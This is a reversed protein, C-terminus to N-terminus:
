QELVKKRRLIHHYHQAFRHSEDRVCQLLKLGPDTRALKVAKNSQDTFILEEKKALSIVRPPHLNLDGFADLAAHLQGLGGDILVLDPALEEGEAIRRFRRWVVEKLMAYDDITQVTKIRFRKYGAKFPLGDIFCVLSGCAEVGQINAIDFGEIIRPPTDLNLIRALKDLGQRPDSFFVEPQVHVDPKGSLDLAELAKLQDRLKAALEFDLEKAAETMQKRMQRFVASRKSSLFKILRRIDDRYPDKGIRDACPAACQKIAHLLCPRFHRRKPDDDRIDLGCTRFKFIRQLEQVAARLSRVNVFPGFLKSRPNPKRTIYVAPFEERTTIELYPFSKDDTLRENFPPQIDKILRNEQLLAEVESDCELVDFDTVRKIMDAVAPGRSALLDAAPQFYSSVRARLDKAKGIYLVRGTKDKFLYVGPSKPLSSIHQKLNSQRKKKAM